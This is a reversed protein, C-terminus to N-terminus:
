LNRNYGLIGIGILTVMLNFRSQKNFIVLLAPLKQASRHVPM